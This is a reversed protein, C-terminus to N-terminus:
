DMKKDLAMCMDQLKKMGALEKKNRADKLIMDLQALVADDAQDHLDHKERAEQQSLFYEHSKQMMLFTKIGSFKHMAVKQTTEQSLEVTITKLPSDDMDDKLPRTPPVFHIPPTQRPKGCEAKVHRLGGPFMCYIEASM